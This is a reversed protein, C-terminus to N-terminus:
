DFLVLKRRRGGFQRHVISRVTSGYWMTRGNKTPIGEATLVRAISHFGVGCDRYKFIRKLVHQESPIEVLSGSESVGWGFPVSGVRLGQAMKKKLSERTIESTSMNRDSHHALGHCVGCLDVTRTGGRSRPVVHHKVSAHRGCEFCSDSV